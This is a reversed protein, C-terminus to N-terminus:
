ASASRRWSGPSTGASSSRRSAWCAPWARRRVRTKWDVPNVGAAHVRVLVETPLPEPRPVEGLQLVEPGGFADQSIARMTSM